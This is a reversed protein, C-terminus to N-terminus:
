FRPVTTKSTLKFAICTFCETPYAAACEVKLLEMWPRGKLTMKDFVQFYIFLYHGLEGAHLTQGKAMMAPPATLVCRSMLLPTKASM